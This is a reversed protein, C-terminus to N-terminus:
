SKKPRGVRPKGSVKGELALKAIRENNMQQVHGLWTLQRM